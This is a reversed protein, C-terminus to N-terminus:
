YNREEKHESKIEMEFKSKDTLIRAETLVSEAKPEALAALRCLLSEGYAPRKKSFLKAFVKM